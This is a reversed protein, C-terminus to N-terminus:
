VQRQFGVVIPVVDGCMDLPQLFTIHDVDAIGLVFSIAPRTNM